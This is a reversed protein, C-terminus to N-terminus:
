NLIINVLQVIDLINLSSDGNLDGAILYEGSLIINVLIIVDLINIESDENLDGTDFASNECVSDYLFDTTYDIEFNMNNTFPVHDEGVYTHLISSNGLDNMMAAMFRYM